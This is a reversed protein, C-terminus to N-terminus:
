GSITFWDLRLGHVARSLDSLIRVVEYGGSLIRSITDEVEFAEEISVDGIADGFSSPGAEVVAEIEPHDFAHEAPTSFADTM